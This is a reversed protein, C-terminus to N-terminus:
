NDRYINQGLSLLFESTDIATFFLDYHGCCNGKIEPCFKWLAGIRTIDGGEDELPYGSFLLYNKISSENNDSAVTLWSANASIVHCPPALSHHGDCRFINFNEM